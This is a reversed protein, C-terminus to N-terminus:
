EKGLYKHRLVRTVEALYVGYVIFELLLLKSGMRYFIWLAILINLKGLRAFIKDFLRNFKTM